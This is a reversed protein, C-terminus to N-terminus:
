NRWCREDAPAQARPLDATLGHLAAFREAIETGACSKMGVPGLHVGDGFMGRPLYMIDDDFIKSADAWPETDPLPVSVIRLRGGRAAALSRLRAVFHASVPSLAVPTPVLIVDRPRVPNRRTLPAPSQRWLNNIAMIGPLASYVVQAVALRRDHKVRWLEAIEDPRHFFASFYDQHDAPDLNTQLKEPRSVIVIDRAKPCRRFAEEALYFDGALSVTANTTLFRVRGHPEGGPPFFQRAVSDGVYIREVNPGPEAARRMVDYIEVGVLVSPDAAIRREALAEFVLVAAALTVVFVPARKLFM